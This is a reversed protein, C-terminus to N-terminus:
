FHTTTEWCPASHAQRCSLRQQVLFEGSLAGDMEPPLCHPCWSLKSCVMHGCLLLARGWGLGSLRKFTLPSHPVAGRLCMCRDESPSGEIHLTLGSPQCKSDCVPNESLSPGQHFGPAPLTATGREWACLSSKPSKVVTCLLLSYAAPLLWPGGAALLSTAECRRRRGRLQGKEM